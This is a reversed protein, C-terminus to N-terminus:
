PSGRHITEYNELITLPRLLIGLTSSTKIPFPKQLFFLFRVPPGGTLGEEGEGEKSHLSHVPAMGPAMGDVRVQEGRPREGM